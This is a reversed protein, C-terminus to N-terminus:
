SVSDRASRLLDGNGDIGGAGPHRCSRADRRCIGEAALICAQGGDTVPIPLLNTLAMGLSIVSTLALLAIWGSQAAQGCLRAIGIPGIILREPRRHDIADRVETPLDAIVSATGTTVAGAASVIGRRTMATPEVHSRASGSSAAIQVDIPEASADPLTPEVRLVLGLRDFSVARDPARPTSVLMTEGDRLIEIDVTTSSSRDFDHRIEALTCDCSVGAGLLRDGPRFGADDAPSGPLVMEVVGIGSPESSGPPTGFKYAVAGVVIALAVNALPGALYIQVRVWRSKSRFEDPAGTGEDLRGGALRVYGGVPISSLCFVTPGQRWKLLKPGIGVSLIEVRVGHMRALLFHGLEHVLVVVGLVLVFGALTMM